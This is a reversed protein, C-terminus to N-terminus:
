LVLLNSFDSKFYPNSFYIGSWQGHHYSTFLSSLRVPLLFIASLSVASHLDFANLAVTVSFVRTDVM